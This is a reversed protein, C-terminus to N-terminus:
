NSMVRVTGQMTSYSNILMRILFRNYIYPRISIVQKGERQFALCYLRFETLTIKQATLTIKTVDHMYAIKVNIHEDDM